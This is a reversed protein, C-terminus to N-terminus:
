MGGLHVSANKYVEKCYGCMECDRDCSMVRSGFDAPIKKNEIIQPYFMGSHDPELISHISGGISGSLYATLVRCPDRNVRTALKVASTYREYLTVDEPRIFSTRSLWKERAKENKLYTHCIGEFSYGNDMAAIESEHSVLNDHFTHASCNSLCGSNALLYMEKGNEDCWARLADLARKSRNCERKVYFSDFLDSLYEIGEVSGIGMNVSARVDIGDFNERIFRAILPSSTTVSLFNLHSSLYDLTTGIKHFFARSQSDKGYCNGNFLLNFAIGADALASLDAEQRKEKEYLTIGDDYTLTSRGNPFDGFSFYVESIKDKAAVIDRVFRDGDTMQYGVIYKM